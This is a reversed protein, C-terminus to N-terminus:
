PPGFQNLSVDTIIVASTADTDANTIRRLRLKEAGPWRWLPVNTSVTHTTSATPTFSWTWLDATETAENVGNYLPTLAFTVAANAGSQATLTVSMTAYSREVGNTYHYAWAGGGSALPQISVDQLLPQAAGVGAATVTARTGAKNTFVTGALNTGPGIVSSLNTINFNNTAYVAPVALFKNGGPLNSNHVAWQANASVALAVVMLISIIKKM